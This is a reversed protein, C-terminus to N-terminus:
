RAPRFIAVAYLILELREVIHSAFEHRYRDACANFTCIVGITRVLRCKALCIARFRVSAGSLTAVTRRDTVSATAIPKLTDINYNCDM